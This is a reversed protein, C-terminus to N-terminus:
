NSLRAATGCARSVPEDVAYGCCFAASASTEIQPLPRAGSHKRYWTARSVGLAEWPKRRSLSYGEYEARPKAGRARREERRRERDRKSRRAKREAKTLDIAGITTIRLRTREVDTLALLTALRDATFKRPRTVTTVILGQVEAPLMWPAGVELFMKIRHGADGSRQALHHAMARAHERGIDNDPLVYGFRASILRRLEAVRLAALSFPERPKPFKREYRRAIARIAATTM